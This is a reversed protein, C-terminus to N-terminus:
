EKEKEQRKALVRIVNKKTGLVFVRSGDKNPAVTINNCSAALHGARQFRPVGVYGVLGLFKGDPEYRKIRGLGSEATYLVGGPGFAINMPNCCSGFGEINNRDRQGWKSLVNGDRDFLVVRHRANEAVYLKGDKTTIDLRQCCGRLGKAIIKPSGLDLDFRVITAKASMSRGSGFSVFVDKGAVAIGSAKAKPFGGDGADATKLVKGAKDLKAVKGMGGVYVTGDDLSHIAHPAFSLDWTDLLKGDSGIVKIKSTGADCALLKGDNTLSFSTLQKFATEETLGISEVEEHTPTPTPAPAEEGALCLAAPALAVILICAFHRANM